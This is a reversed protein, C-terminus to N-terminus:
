TLIFIRRHIIAMNLYVSGNSMFRGNGIEELGMDTKKGNVFVVEDKIEIDATSDNLEDAAVEKLRQLIENCAILVHKVM